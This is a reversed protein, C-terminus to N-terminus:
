QVANDALSAALSHMERESRANHVRNLVIQKEEETMASYANLAPPNMALAMGFGIPVKYFDM